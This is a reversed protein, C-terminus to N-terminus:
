INSDPRPTLASSPPLVPLTLAYEPIEGTLSELFDNISELENPTFEKNLMEKAVISVANRLIWESGDHLYPYTQAVNLLSPVKFFHKDAERGTFEFRGSHSIGTNRENPTRFFAFMEGGLVQGRHCAQCGADMFITLGEKQEPTLANEDGQLFHDFPSVTVLTREFAGIANGVNDYSLPNESNHFVSKFISVYQPISSIVKVVHEKTSAMEKLDLIPMGAQEEVDKARGDWFQFKHFAANLVTPSNLPGDQWAHGLSVPLQDVGYTAMNHCTNCSILGSKSLRPDYFLMKGLMIKEDSAVSDPHFASLPLPSTFELARTQLESLQIEQRSAEKNQQTCFSFVWIVPLFILILKFIYVPSTKM